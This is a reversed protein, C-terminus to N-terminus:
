IESRLRKLVSVLSPELQAKYTVREDTNPHIFAL